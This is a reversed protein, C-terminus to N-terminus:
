NKLKDLQEALKDCYNEKLDMAGYEAPAYTAILVTERGYVNNQIKMFRGPINEYYTIHEMLQKRILASVGTEARKGKNVGSWFYVYKNKHDNGAEHLLM